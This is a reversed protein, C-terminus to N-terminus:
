ISCKFSILPSPTSIRVTIATFSAQTTLAQPFALPMLLSLNHAPSEAPKYYTAPKFFDMIKHALRAYSKGLANAPRTPCISSPRISHHGIVPLDYVRHLSLAHLINYYIKVLSLPKHCSPLQHKNPIQHQPRVKLARLHIATTSSTPKAKSRLLHIEPRCDTMRHFPTIFDNFLFM